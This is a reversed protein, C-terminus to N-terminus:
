RRPAWKLFCACARSVTRFPSVRNQWPPPGRLFGARHPTRLSLGNLVQASLDPDRVVQALFERRRYRRLVTDCVARAAGNRPTSVLAGMEGVFHGPGVRGLVAARDGTRRSVEIEGSVVRYIHGGAAGERFLIQGAALDIDAM